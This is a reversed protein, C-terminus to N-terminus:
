RPCDELKLDHPEGNKWGSCPDTVPQANKWSAHICPFQLSLVAFAVQAKLHPTGSGVITVITSTVIARWVPKSVTFATTSTNGGRGEVMRFYWARPVLDTLAFPVENACGKLSKTGSPM